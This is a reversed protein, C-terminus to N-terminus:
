ILLEEWNWAKGEEARLSRRGAQIAGLVYDVDFRRLGEPFLVLFYAEAGHQQCNLLNKVQHPKANSLPWTDRQTEKADFCHPPSAIIDYDYPEGALYVGDVTRETHNKHAHVGVSNLYNIIEQIQTELYHGRRQRM